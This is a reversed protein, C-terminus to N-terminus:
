NGAGVGFRVCCGLAKGQISMAKVSYASTRALRYSANDEVRM